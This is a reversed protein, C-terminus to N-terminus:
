FLSTQLQFHHTEPRNDMILVREVDSKSRELLFEIIGTYECSMAHTVTDETLEVDSIRRYQKKSFVNSIAESHSIARVIVCTKWDTVLFVRLDSMHCNGKLENTRM